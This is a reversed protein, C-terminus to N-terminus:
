SCRSKLGSSSDWFRTNCNLGFGGTSISTAQTHSRHVPGFPGAQVGKGCDGIFGRFLDRGRAMLTTDYRQPFGIKVFPERRRSHAPVPQFHNEAVFFPRVVLM